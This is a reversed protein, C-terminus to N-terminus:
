EAGKCNALTEWHVYAAIQGMEVQFSQTIIAATNIRKYIAIFM